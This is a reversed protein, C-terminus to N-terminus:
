RGDASMLDRLPPALERAFDRVEEAEDVLLDIAQGLARLLEEREISGVLAGAARKRVDGPLQDLGRGHGVALGRRHCALSLAQDRVGSIWYESQWLRNREICYRGRVAHHVGVGFIERPSTPSARERHVSNGFLLQFRPGYDAVFGPSFSLDVQLNGPFLFVRYVTHRDTVDFLAIASFQERLDAAWDSLVASEVAGVALGFTLDLDSWRDETGTAASGVAAGAIIRSDSRAKRLLYERLRDREEVTFVPRTV